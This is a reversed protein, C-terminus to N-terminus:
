PASLSPAPSPVSSEPFRICLLTVDDDFPTGENIQKVKELLRSFPDAAPLPRNAQVLDRWQRYQFFEGRSNHSETIGDTYVLLADGPGFPEVHLPIKAAVVTGVMGLPFTGKSIDKLTGDRRLLLAPVHGAFALSVKQQLPEFLMAVATMSKKKQLIRFFVDNIACLAETPNKIVQRRLHTVMAKAITTIMGAPFGHGSVDGIFAFVSDDEQRFFDFFDGGAADCPKCYGRCELGSPHILPEQPSIMLQIKAVEQGERQMVERFVQDRFFGFAWIGLTVSWWVILFLGWPLMIGQVYLIFGVVACLPFSLGLSGLIAYTPLGLSFFVGAAGAALLLILRWFPSFLPRVRRGRRHMDYAQALIEVAPRVGFATSWSDHLVPATGGLFVQCGKLGDVPFGPQLFERLSVHSIGGDKEAFLLLFEAPTEGPRLPACQGRRYRGDASGDFRLPSLEGFRHFAADPRHHIASPVVGGKKHAELFVPTFSANSSLELWEARENEPLAALSEPLPLVPFVRAPGAALLRRTISALFSVRWPWKEGAEELTETDICLIVMDPHPAIRNKEVNVVGDALWEDVSATTEPCWVTAFAVMIVIGALIATRRPGLLALAERRLGQLGTILRQRM